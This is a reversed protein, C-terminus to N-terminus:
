AGFGDPRLRGDAGVLALARPEPEVTEASELYREYGPELGRARGLAALPGFLLAQVTPPPSAIVMVDRYGRATVALQLPGPIGKENCEGDRALGFLTGIMEVFRDGPSVEVVVEATEEGVQWWDHLTGPPVEAAEGPGLETTQEGIQFGVRGAIVHFRETITPHHHAVAVRGGPEVYLHSVLVQDPHERPDTLVVAREGTVPNAFVQGRRGTAPPVSVSPLYM